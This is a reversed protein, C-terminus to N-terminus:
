ITNSALTSKLRSELVAIRKKYFKRNDPNKKELFSYIKKELLLISNISSSSEKLAHDCHILFHRSNIYPTGLSLLSSINKQTLSGGISISCKCSSLKRIIHKIVGFVKSHEMNLGLSKALDTRGITVHSIEQFSKSSIIDDLNSFGQSTEINMGLHVDESYERVTDVFNSLAYSSEVMPAMITHVECALMEKIDNRAEAGGIKVFVPLINSVMEKLIKIESFNMEEIETGTKFAFLLGKKKFDLLEQQITDM